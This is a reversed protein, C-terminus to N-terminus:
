RVFRFRKEEPGTPEEPTEPAQEQTDDAGNVEDAQPADDTTEETTPGEIGHCDLCKAWGKEFGREAAAEVLNTIYPMLEDVTVADDGTTITKEGIARAGHNAGIAVSSTELVKGEEFLIGGGEMFSWKTPNFGISCGTMIGRDYKGKIFMAHEDGEDWRVGIISKDGVVRAFPITGLPPRNYDHNEMWPLGVMAGSWDLGAQVIIDGDHDKDETSAIFYHLGAPADAPIQMKQEIGDVGKVAIEGDTFPSLRFQKYIISKNTIERKM